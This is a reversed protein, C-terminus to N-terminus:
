ESDAVRGMAPEGEDPLMYHRKRKKEVPDEDKYNETVKRVEDLWHVLGFEGETQKGIVMQGSVFEKVVEDKLQSLAKIDTGFRYIGYHKFQVSINYGNHCCMAVMNAIDERTRDLRIVKEKGSYAHYVGRAANMAANLSKLLSLKDMTQQPADVPGVEDDDPFEYVVHTITDQYTLCQEDVTEWFTGERKKARIEVTLQYQDFCKSLAEQLINKVTDTKGDFSSSREIAIQAVGPRNDVIVRCGPHYVLELDEMKEKYKHNRENCIVLMTVGDKRKEVYNDLPVLSRDKKEKTTPLKGGLMEELLEQAKDYASRGDMMSLLNGQRSRNFLLKYIQYVAM